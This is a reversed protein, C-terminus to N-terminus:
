SPNRSPFCERLSQCDEFANVNIETLVEPLEATEMATCGKFAESGIYTVSQPLTISKLKSGQFVAPTIDTVTAPIDYHNKDSQVPFLMLTTIDHNFLVGDECLYSPNGDEM